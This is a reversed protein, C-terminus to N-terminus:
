KKTYMKRLFTCLTFSITTQYCYNGVFYGFFVYALSISKILGVCLRLLTLLDMFSQQCQVACVTYRVLVFQNTDFPSKKKYILILWKLNDTEKQCIFLNTTCQEVIKLYEFIHIM